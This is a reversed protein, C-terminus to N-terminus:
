EGNSRAPFETGIGVSFPWSLNCASIALSDTVAMGDRQNKSNNAHGRLIRAMFPSIDKWTTSNALLSRM